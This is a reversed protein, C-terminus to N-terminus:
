IPTTVVIAYPLKTPVTTTVVLTDGYLTAAAMVVKSKSEQLRLIWYM